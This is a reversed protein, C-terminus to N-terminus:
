EIYRPHENTVPRVYESFRLAFMTAAESEEFYFVTWVNPVEYSSDWDKDKKIYIRYSKDLRHVLVTESLNIEIWKRISIKIDNRDKLDDSHIAVTHPFTPNPWTFVYRNGNFADHHADEFHWEALERIEDLTVLRGM